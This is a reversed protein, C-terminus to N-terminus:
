STNSPSIFPRGTRIVFSSNLSSIFGNTSRVMVAQAFASRSAPTFFSCISATTITPPLVRTGNTFSLTRSKKPCSTCSLSFGSSTTARPAATCASISAPLLVSISSSSTVGRESPMSVMPPSISTSIGRLELIGTFAPRWYVVCFSPCPPIRIETNWPSRSRTCSLLFSDSNLRVPIGPIGAPIALTSTLKRMSASPISFTLAVSSRLPTACLM